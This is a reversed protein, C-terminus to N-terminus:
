AMAARIARGTFSRTLFLQLAGIMVISVAFPVLMREPLIIGGVSISSGIYPAIVSRYDAGATLVLALGTRALSVGGLAPESEITSVAAFISASVIACISPSLLSAWDCRTPSPM